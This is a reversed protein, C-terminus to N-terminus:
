AGDGADQLVEGRFLALADAARERAAEADGVRRAAAVDAVLREVTGVDVGHPDVTLRYGGGDYPVLDPGGLARRLQSVKSQLTNRGDSGVGPWLEDLIQEARVARGAELALRVLVETTRGAPVAVPEGDRLVRVPGLLAVELM